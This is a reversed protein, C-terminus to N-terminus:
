PYISYYNNINTEIATRNASQDGVMLDFLQFDGKFSLDKGNRAGLNHVHDSYSLTSTNESIVLGGLEVGDQWMKVSDIASSQGAKLNITILHQGTSAPFDVQLSGNDLANRQYVRYSDTPGIMLAFAGTNATGNASSEYVVQVSNTDTVNIVMFLWLETAGSLAVSSSSQLGDGLAFLVSPKGNVKNITGSSVVQPQRTAVSRAYNNSGQQDYWVPLFGNNAGVFTTLASEDLDNGNFGIDQEVNDNDRRVEEVSGAYATRLKNQGVAIIAPYDDLLLSSSVGGQNSSAYIGLGTGIM